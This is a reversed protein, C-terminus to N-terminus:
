PSRRAAPDLPDARGGRQRRALHPRLSRSGGGRPRAQGRRGAGARRPLRPRAAWLCPKPRRAGHRAGLNRLATRRTAALSTRGKPMRGPVVVVAGQGIGVAAAYRDEIAPGLHALAVAESEASLVAEAGSGQGVAVVLGAGADLRVARLAAFLAPVPAADGGCSSGARLELVSAGEALLANVVRDRLRDPRGHNAVIVAAADGVSWGLPEFLLMAGSCNWGDAPGPPRFDSSSRSSKRSTRLPGPTRFATSTCRSWSPRWSPLASFM